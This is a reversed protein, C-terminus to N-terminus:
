EKLTSLIPMRISLDIIILAIFPLAPNYFAWLYGGILPAPARTLGRITSIIAGWRGRQRPYVLEMRLSTWAGMSSSVIGRLFFAIYIYFINPAFAITLFYIYLLPRTLLITKKRGIRDALKGMPISSATYVINQISGFLGLDLATAGKFEALYLMIFPQAIGFAFAGLFEVLLWRKTQSLNMVDRYDKMFNNHEEKRSRNIDELRSYVWIFALFMIAFQLFYLNRISNVQLGGTTNLILGAILPALVLALGSSAFYLGFGAAREKRKISNAIIAWELMQLSGMNIFGIVIPILTLQWTNSLGFFLPSLTALLLLFLYTKRISKTDALWGLPLATLSSLLGGISNLSGLQVPDAGLKSIYISSYNSTLGSSLASLIRKVVLIKFNRQKRQILDM